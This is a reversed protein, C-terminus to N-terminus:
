GHRFPEITIFGEGESREASLNDNKMGKLHKTRTADAGGDWLCGANMADEVFAIDCDDPHVCDKLMM